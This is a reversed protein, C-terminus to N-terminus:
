REHDIGRRIHFIDIFFRAPFHGPGREVTGTERDAWPSTLLISLKFVLMMVPLCPNTSGDEM